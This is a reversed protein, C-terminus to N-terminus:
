FVYFLRFQNCATSTDSLQHRLCRVLQSLDYGWPLFLIKTNYKEWHSLIFCLMVGTVIFYVRFVGVGYEGRGFISYLAVPLFLTAWSDLGHDFLEGLPSSSGTRRAQKGDIGDSVSVFNVNSISVVIACNIIYEWFFVDTTKIPNVEHYLIKFMQDSNFNFNDGHM